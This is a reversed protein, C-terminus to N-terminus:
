IRQCVLWPIESIHQVDKSFPVPPTLPHVVAYVNDNIHDKRVTLYKGDRILFSKVKDPNKTTNRKRQEPTYALNLLLTWLTPAQVAMKAIMDDFNVSTLTKEEIDKGAPSLMLSAVGELERSLVDQSCTAAFAEMAPGAAKARARKTGKSIPAKWWRSLINPLEKSHLLSSRHYKILADQTCEENGWSLADLFIPVDMGVSTMAELVTRVKPALDKDKLKDRLGQTRGVQIAPLEEVEVECELEEVDMQDIDSDSDSTDDEPNYDRDDEDRASFLNNWDEDNLVEAQFGQTNKVSNSAM